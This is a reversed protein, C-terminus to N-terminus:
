DPLEAIAQYTKSIQQEAFLQCYTGRSQQNISFIVLGATERDLRHMPVIDALNNQNRIRELLCENVYKGGPTVPLFHPKDAVLIHEDQYIINHSFPITPEDEVERYYCLIQSAKFPTEISIVKGSLWHIKGKTIREIWVSEDILPFHNVLFELVTNWDKNEQPLTVKSPRSAIAM